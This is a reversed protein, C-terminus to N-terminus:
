DDASVEALASVTGPALIAYEVTEGRKVRGIYCRKMKTAVVRSHALKFNTPSDLGLDHHSAGDDLTQNDICQPQQTQIM